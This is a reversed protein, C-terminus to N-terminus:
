WHCFDVVTKLFHIIVLNYLTNNVGAHRTEKPEPYFHRRPLSFKCMKVWVVYEWWSVFGSELLWFMCRWRRFMFFFILFFFDNCIYYAYIQISNTRTVCLPLRPLDPNKWDTVWLPPLRPSDTQKDTVSLTEFWTNAYMVYERNLRLDMRHRINEFDDSEYNNGWKIDGHNMIDVLSFRVLSQLWSLNWLRIKNYDLM